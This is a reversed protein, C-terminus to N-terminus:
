PKKMYMIIIDTTKHNINMLQIRHLHQKQKPPGTIFTWVFFCNSQGGKNIPTDKIPINAKAGKQM